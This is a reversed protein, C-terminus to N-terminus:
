QQIALEQDHFKNIKYIYKNGNIIIVILNGYNIQIYEAFMDVLCIFAIQFFLVHKNM